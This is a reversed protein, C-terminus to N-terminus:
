ICQMDSLSYATSCHKETRAKLGGVLGWVWALHTKCSVSLAFAVSVSPRRYWHFTVTFYPGLLAWGQNLRREFKASQGVMTHSSFMLFTNKKGKSWKWLFSIDAFSTNLIGQPAFLAIQNKRKLWHLYIITKSEEQCSFINFNWMVFYTFPYEQQLSQHFFKAIFSYRPSLEFTGSFQM